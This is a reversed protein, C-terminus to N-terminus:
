LIKKLYDMKKLANRREAMGLDRSRVISGKMSGFVEFCKSRDGNESRLIFLRAWQKFLRSEYDKM